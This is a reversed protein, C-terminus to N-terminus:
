PAQGYDASAVIRAVGAPSRRLPKQEAHRDRRAQVCAQVHEEYCEVDNAMQLAQQPCRRHEWSPEGAYIGPEADTEADCLAGTLAYVIQEVEGQTFRHATDHLDCYLRVGGAVYASM